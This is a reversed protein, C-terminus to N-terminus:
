KRCLIELIKSDKFKKYTSYNVRFMRLKLAIVVAFSFESSGYLNKNICEFLNDEMLLKHSEMIKSGYDNILNCLKVIYKDEKYSEKNGTIYGKLEYDDSYKYYINAIDEADKKYKLPLINIVKKYDINSLINLNNYITSIINMKDNYLLDNLNVKNTMPTKLLKNMVKKNAVIFMKKFSAAIHANRENDSNIYDFVIGCQSSKKIWKVAEEFSSFTRYFASSYRQTSNYNYIHLITEEKDKVIPIKNKKADEKFALYAKDTNFDIRVAKSKQYKWLEEQMFKCENYDPEESSRGLNTLKSDIDLTFSDDEVIAYGYYSERLFTKITANLRIGKNVLLINSNISTYLDSYKYPINSSNRIVKDETVVGILNDINANIRNELFSTVMSNYKVGKYTVNDRIKPSNSNYSNLELYHWCSTSTIANYRYLSTNHTIPNYRIKDKTAKFYEIIDTYDKQTYTSIESWLEERALEIKDEIKKITEKNYIVNERNPTISLEGVNFTLVLGTGYVWDLFNRSKDNLKWKDCPYLVNGLLLKDDVSTDAFAYNKNKIIKIDNNPHSKGFSEIYVNPFFLISSLGDVYSSIGYINKIAVAVGNKEDTPLTSVLTTVISNGEKVMIYSYAKGEYYSTIYVTNSCALSSYKGIGFGGIYKNSERKTSSGINCYVDKFREPSIGTGYDRITISNDTIKIIVPVDTTNAEVHSDWANSVIERIFSQEPHSYLNSSLLTTILELNKPDVGTKFEQIDGIVEIDNHQTDIIM